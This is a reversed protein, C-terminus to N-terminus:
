VQVIYQVVLYISGTGATGKIMFQTGEPFFVADVGNTPSNATEDYLFFSNAACVDMDNIGDTSLTVFVNSNNILKILSAPHSLPAGLNQYSSTLTSSNITRLPGYKLIKTYAM